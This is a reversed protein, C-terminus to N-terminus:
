KWFPPLDGPHVLDIDNGSQPDHIRFGRRTAYQVVASYAHRVEDESPPLKLVVLWAGWLSDLFAAASSENSKNIAMDHRGCSEEFQELTFEGDV